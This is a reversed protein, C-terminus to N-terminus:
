ESVRSHAPSRTPSPLPSLQLRGSRRVDVAPLHMTPGREERPRWIIRIEKKGTVGTVMM